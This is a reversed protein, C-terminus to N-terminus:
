KSLRKFGLPFYYVKRRIYNKYKNKYNMKSNNKALKIVTLTIFLYIPLFLWANFFFTTASMIMTLKM